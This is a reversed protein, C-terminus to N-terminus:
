KSAPKPKFWGKVIAEGAKLGGAGVCVGIFLALGHTVIWGILDSM